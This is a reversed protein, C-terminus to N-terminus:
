FLYSSMMRVAVPLHNLGSERTLLGDIWEVVGVPVAGAAM